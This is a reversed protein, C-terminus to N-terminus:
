WMATVKLFAGITALGLQADLSLEEASGASEGANSWNSVRGRAGLFVQLPLRETQRTYTVGLRGEVGLTFLTDGQDVRYDSAQAIESVGQDDHSLDGIGIRGAAAWDVGFGAEQGFLRRRATDYGFQLSITTWQTSDDFAAIVPGAADDLSLVAPMRLDEYIIALGIGTWRCWELTVTEWRTDIDAEVVQGSYDTTRAEGQVRGSEGGLVWWAGKGPRIFTVGGLIMEARDSSDMSSLYGLNASWNEWRAAGALRISEVPDIQYEGAFGAGPGTGPGSSSSVDWHHWGVEAETLLRPATWGAPPPDMFLHEVTGTKTVGSAALASASSATGLSDGDDDDDDNQSDSTGSSAGGSDRYSGVAAPDSLQTAGKGWAKGANSIIVAALLAAFRYVWASRM